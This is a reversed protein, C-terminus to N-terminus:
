APAQSLRALQDQSLELGAADLGEQLREHSSSALLGIMQPDGQTLWALVVQNPTAGTETSVARLIELRVRMDPDDYEDPQYNAAIRHAPDSCAGALLATVSNCVATSPGAM